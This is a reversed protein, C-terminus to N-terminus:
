KVKYSNNFHIKDIVFGNGPFGSNVNERRFPTSKSNFSGQHNRWATNTNGDRLLFRTRRQRNDEMIKEDAADASIEKVFKREFSKNLGKPSFNRPHKLLNIFEPDTRALLNM